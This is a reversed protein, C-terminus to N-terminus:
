CLEFRNAAPRDLDGPFKEQWHEALKV